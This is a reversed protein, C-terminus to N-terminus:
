YLWLLVRQRVSKLSYSLLKGIFDQCENIIVRKAANDSIGMEILPAMLEPKPRWEVTGSERAGVIPGLNDAM